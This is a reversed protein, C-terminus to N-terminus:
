RHVSQAQQTDPNLRQPLENMWYTPNLSSYQYRAATEVLAAKVPNQHIYDAFRACEAADRVRRDVFSKQWIPPQIGFQIGAKRSFGGKVFQMVRELILGEPVSLLLHVHNPMVVFAHVLLKGEDRYRFM